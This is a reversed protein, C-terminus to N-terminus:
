GDKDEQMNEEFVHEEDSAPTVSALRPEGRKAREEDAIRMILEVAWANM